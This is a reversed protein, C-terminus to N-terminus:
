RDPNNARWWFNVYFDWNGNEAWVQDVGPRWVADRPRNLFFVSGDDNVVNVGKAGHPFMIVNRPNPDTSNPHIACAVMAHARGDASVKDWTGGYKMKGMQGIKQAWMGDTGSGIACYSYGVAMGAMYWGTMDSAMYPQYGRGDEGMFERGPCMIIRKPDSWPRMWYENVDYKLGLYGGQLLLGLGGPLGDKSLVAFIGIQGDSMPLYGKNDNAYMYMAQGIQRLQSGCAVKVASERAKALSPLLISILLAIIGIVVLLEVLTFGHDRRPHTRSRCPFLQNM